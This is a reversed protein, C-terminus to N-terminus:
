LDPIRRHLTSAREYARAVRLVGRDDFRRGVLQLGIPLGERSFGCNISAAPQESMNFPFCFQNHKSGGPPWPLEAAYPLVPMTPSIVCDYPNCAALTRRRIPGANVLAEMLDLSTLTAGRRCWEAIEPLVLQQREPTLAVFDLSARVQLCRDFDPEPNDAFIPPMPEIRAGLGEFVRGAAVLHARIEPDLPLGFGIDILLGIRLGTVGAEADELYDRSDYPLATYDRPDPRTIVNLMLSADAVTRAMPGTVLWPWPDHYPVRGYSPKLGFTGCFASPIRVSGGIDSGVALPGLGAAVAAGAGSSSGGSNCALNWPNRTIGHLTSVGAAIFGFDPMTTKGLIVAGAEKLRATVPADTDWPQDLDTARTGVPSPMGKAPIHDKISVPVGDLLGVPENRRWREESARASALAGDHDVLYFANVKPNVAQIRDLIARTVDVPSLAGSRYQQLLESAPTYWRETAMIQM